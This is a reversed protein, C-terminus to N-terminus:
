MYGAVGLLERTEEDAGDNLLQSTLGDEPKRGYIAPKQWAPSYGFLILRRDRTGDTPRARHWLGGFALVMSGAPFTIEVQDEKDATQGTPLDTQHWRHSGPVVYLPGNGENVDDLYLLTDLTQPASWMPPLPDPVMRQHHHWEVESHQDGPRCLRATM